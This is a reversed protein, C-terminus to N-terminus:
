QKPQRGFITYGVAFFFMNGQMAPNRRGLNLWHYGVRVRVGHYSSAVNGNGMPFKVDAQAAATLHAGPFKFNDYYDPNPDEEDGEPPFVSSFGGGITPFIRLRRKDYVDYGFELEIDLFTSPDDSPWTYGKSEVPRLLKQGGIGFRLAATWHNQWYAVAFDGGYCTKLNRELNGSWIGQLFLADVGIAWRGAPKIAYMKSRMFGAFRSNPYETLFSDLRADFAATERKGSSIRLLFDLLLASFAREEGSIWAHKVQAFIQARDRFLQADLWEFLSDNPPPYKYYTRQEVSDTFVAVEDLLPAYNELWFYFLWREDWQLALWTEDELTRLSDLWFQADLRNDQRLSQLLELRCTAINKAKSPLSDTQGTTSAATFFLCVFLLYSRSMSSVTLPM